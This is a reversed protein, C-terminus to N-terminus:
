PLNRYALSVTDEVVAAAVAVCCGLAGTEEPAAAYAARSSAFRGSNAPLFTTQRRGSVPSRYRLM